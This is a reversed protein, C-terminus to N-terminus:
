HNRSPWGPISRAPSTSWGNTVATTLVTAAADVRILVTCMISNRATLQCYRTPYPDGITHRGIEWVEPRPFSKRCVDAAHVDPGSTVNSHELVPKDLSELVRARGLRLDESTVM